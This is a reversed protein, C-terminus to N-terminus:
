DGLTFRHLTKLDDGVLSVTLATRTGEIVAFGNKSAAFLSRPGKSIRRAQAGGGGAVVFHVGAEPGLHQLDHDHGCLYVQARGRLVPLVNDRVLPEDGHAGYSFIPHHGYVVKWRATSRALERDLWDLQARSVLNTDIAFFQISGAVFTYRAAPMRWYPSQASHLVEAAPSDALLWDHNGLTPYFRIRMPEYLRAFDRQWRPDAPGTVGAPYFNDGLTIALDFPQQAHMRRIAEAVREQRPSGDGFDGFALVRVRPKGDLNLSFVPPAERLFHPLNQGAAFVQHREIERAIRERAPADRAGTQLRRELAGIVPALQARRLGYAAALAVQDSADTEVIQALLPAAGPIWTLQDILRLRAQENTAARYAREVTPLDLAPPAPVADDSDALQSRGVRSGFLAAAVVSLLAISTARRISM